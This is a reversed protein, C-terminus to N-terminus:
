IKNDNNQYELINQAHSFDYIKPQFNNALLIKRASLNLLSLNNERQIKFVGKVLSHM